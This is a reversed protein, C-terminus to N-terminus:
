HQDFITLYPSVIAYPKVFKGPVFILLFPSKQYTPIGINMNYNQLLCYYEFYEEM